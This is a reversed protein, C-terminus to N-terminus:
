LKAILATQHTFGPAPDGRPRQRDTRAPQKVRDHARYHHEHFSRTTYVDAGGGALCLTSGRAVGPTPIETRSARGGSTLAPSVPAQTKDGVRARPFKPSLVGRMRCWGPQEGLGVSAPFRLREQM